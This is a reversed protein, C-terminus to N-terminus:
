FSFAQQKKVVKVVNVRCTICIVCHNQIRNQGELDLKLLGDDEAITGRPCPYIEMTM